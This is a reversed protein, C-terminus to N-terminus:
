MTNIIRGLEMSYLRPSTINVENSADKCLLEMIEEYKVVERISVLGSLIVENVFLLHSLLLSNGM